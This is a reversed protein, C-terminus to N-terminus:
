GRYIQEYIKATEYKESIENINQLGNEFENKVLDIASVYILSLILDSVQNPMSESYWFNIPFGDAILHIVKNQGRITYSTGIKKGKENKLTEKSTSLSELEILGIERQDSSASVLYTGHSLSLIEERGISTEGSCGIILLKDKVANYLENVAEFGDERAKARKLPDQDYITITMGKGRLRKAIEEGITGYGLVAARSGRLKEGSLLSELNRIVADAVYPPEIENKIKSEAVNLIPIKLDGIQKDNRIGRTTQEVAGITKELLKPFREHLSPVIYRGDEIVVFHGNVDQTNLVDLVKELNEIPYVHYGKATLLSTTEERHPYLYPKYFLHTRCSELGFKECAELFVILDKLFHLVVLFNIGAFPRDSFEKSLKTALYNLLPMRNRIVELENSSYIFNIRFAEHVNNQAFEHEEGCLDCFIPSSLNFPEEQECVFGNRTECYLRFVPTFVGLKVGRELIQKLEYESIGISASAHQIDLVDGARLQSNRIYENLKEIKGRLQPYKHFIIDLGEWSM